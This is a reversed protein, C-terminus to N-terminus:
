GPPLASIAAADWPRPNFVYVRRGPPVVTPTDMSIGLATRCRRHTFDGGAALKTRLRNGGHGMRFLMPVVEDVPAADLWTEDECWSALATMSLTTGFPLGARVGRLVDLLAGRQSTRVEMDVQVQAAGRTLLVAAGVVQDALAQSWELRRSQDLEIHVVAIPPPRGPAVVLPFRRGRRVVIADGRLRIFGTVAAIGIGSPLAGLDEPREWAWVIRAQQAHLHAPVLMTAILLFLSRAVVPESASTFCNRWPLSAM